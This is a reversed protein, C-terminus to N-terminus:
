YTKSRGRVGWEDVVPKTISPERKAEPPSANVYEFETVACAIQQGDPVIPISEFLVDRYSRAPFILMFKHHKSREAATGSELIYSCRIGIEKLDYASGNTVRLIFQDQAVANAMADGVTELSVQKLTELKRHSVQAAVPATAVCLVAAAFCLIAPRM